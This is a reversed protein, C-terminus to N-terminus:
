YISNFNRSGVLQDFQGGRPRYYVLLTYQNEAAYWNGELPTFDPNDNKDPVAFQYNYYGQKLYLRGTYGKILDNYTM